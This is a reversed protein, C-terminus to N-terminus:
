FDNFKLEELLYGHMNRCCPKMFGVARHCGCFDDKFIQPCGPSGGPAGAPRPSQAPDRDGLVPIRPRRFDPKSPRNPHSSSPAPSAPNAAATALLHSNSQLETECESVAARVAAILSCFHLSASLEAARLNLTRTALSVNNAWLGPGHVAPRRHLGTQTNAM